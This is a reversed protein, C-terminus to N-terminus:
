KLQGDQLFAAPDITVAMDVQWDSPDHLSGIDKGGPGREKGGLRVLGSPGSMAQPLPHWGRLM